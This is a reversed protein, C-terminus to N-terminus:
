TKTSIESWMAFSGLGVFAVTCLNLRIHGGRASIDGISYLPYGYFPPLYHTGLQPKWSLTYPTPLTALVLFAVPKFLSHFVDVDVACSMIRLTSVAISLLISMRFILGHNFADPACLLSCTSPSTRISNHIKLWDSFDCPWGWIGGRFLKWM